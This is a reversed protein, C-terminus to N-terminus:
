PRFMIPHKLKPARPRTALWLLRPGLVAYVVLTIAFFGEHVGLLYNHDIFRCLVNTGGMGLAVAAWALELRHRPDLARGFVSARGDSRARVWTAVLAIGIVFCLGGTIAGWALDFARSGELM